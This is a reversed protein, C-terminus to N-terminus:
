KAHCRLDSKRFWVVLCSIGVRKGNQAPLNEREVSRVLMDFCNSLQFFRNNSTSDSWLNIWSPTVANASHESLTKHAVGVSGGHSVVTLTQAYLDISERVFVDVLIEIFRSSAAKRDVVLIEPFTIWSLFNSNWTYTAPAGVDPSVAHLSQANPLWLSSSLYDRRYSIRSLSYLEYSTEGGVFFGRTAKHHFIQHLSCKGNDLFHKRNWEVIKSPM